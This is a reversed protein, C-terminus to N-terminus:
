QKKFIKPDVVPNLQIDTVTSESMTQGGATTVNKMAFRLAGYSKYDSSAETMEM